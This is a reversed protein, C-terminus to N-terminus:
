TFNIKRRSDLYGLLHVFLHIKVSYNHYRSGGSAMTKCVIALVLLSVAPGGFSLRIRGVDTGVMLLSGLGMASEVGCDEPRTVLDEKVFDSTMVTAAFNVGDLLLFCAVLFGFFFVMFVFTTALLLNQLLKSTFIDFSLSCEVFSGRAVLVEFSHLFTDFTPVFLLLLQVLSDDPLDEM